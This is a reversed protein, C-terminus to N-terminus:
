GHLTFTRTFSGITGSDDGIVDVVIDSAGFEFPAVPWSLAFGPNRGEYQPFADLVDPRPDSLSTEGVTEGNHTIRVYSVDNAATVWGHLRLRIGDILSLSDLMFRVDGDASVAPWGVASAASFERVDRYHVPTGNVRASRWIIPLLQGNELTYRKSKYATQTFVFLLVDVGHQAALEQAELIEEDSDNFEFLIYKWVVRQRIGAVHKPVDSMFKLVRDLTGGVRYKAYSEQRAGDCSVMVEDIASTFRAAAYDFNGNTILRQTTQPFLDRAISVFENFKPHTMPEGQGCYEIEDISYQEDRLSRLLSDYVDIPMKYPKPRRVLQQPQSCCLCGLNCALSPEVQLTRIRKQVLTDLFSEHPRFLACQECTGPWPVTGQQLSRRVHKYLAGEVVNQISWNQGPGHVRGLLHEQGADDYCVIDGNSRLFLSSLVICNM